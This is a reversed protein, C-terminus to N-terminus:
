VWAAQGASVRLEGVAAARASTGLSKRCAERQLVAGRGEEAGHPPIFNFAQFVLGGEPHVL